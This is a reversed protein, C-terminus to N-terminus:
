TLFEDCSLAFGQQSLSLVKLSSPRQHASCAPIGAIHEYGRVTMQRPTLRCLNMESCESDPRQSSCAAYLSGDFYRFDDVSDPLRIRQTLVDFTPQRFDITAIVGLSYDGSEM